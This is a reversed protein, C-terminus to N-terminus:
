SISELRKEMSSLGAGNNEGDKTKITIKLTIKHKGIDITM